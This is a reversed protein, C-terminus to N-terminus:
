MNEADQSLTKARLRTLPPHTRSTQLERRSLPTNPPQYSPDNRESIPTDTPQQTLDPTNPSHDVLPEHENGAESNQPCALPYPGIKFDGQSNGNADQPKVLRRPAKREPKQRPKPNWVEPNFSKKLRNIHVVQRRGKEDVIEYNLESIKKTIQCPGIWPKAFKRTLGPKLAPNYLYVLDQVAFERPKAKRDYLRKNNMHSKRNAKAALRYALRLSSKLNELRQDEDTNDKPLRAKLNETSPLVMERGHLLYFPSYGTTTHPTARHSMLYYPVVEDWNKHNANVYHSLGSHLSRHLREVVGNSSAHYSSTRVRRVGLIKCTRQFFSSMFERGQDTILTSGSGHRTVIQSSYVRACTLPM